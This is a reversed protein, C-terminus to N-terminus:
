GPKPVALNSKLELCLISKESEIDGLIVEMKKLFTRRKKVFVTEHIELTTLLMKFLLPFRSTVGRGGLMIGPCRMLRQLALTM